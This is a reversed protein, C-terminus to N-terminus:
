RPVELDRRLYSRTPAHGSRLATLHFRAPQYLSKAPHDAFMATLDLRVFFANTGALNCSILRYDSLRAIFAGLSAGHYDDGNWRHTPDYAIHVVAPPPFKANYEVTVVRPRWANACAVVVDLDNGDIDVSLLDLGGLATLAEQDVLSPASERDVMAEVVRLRENPPLAARIAAINAPDGDVWVGRWGKLLLYHTNNELGTGCGIEVFSGRDIELREFIAELIGDEDAQSYVKFGHAAPNGPTEQATKDQLRELERSLEVQLLMDLTAVAVPAARAAGIANKLRKFIPM